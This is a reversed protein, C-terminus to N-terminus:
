REGKARPIPIRKSEDLTFTSGKDKSIYHNLEKLIRARDETMVKLREALEEMQNNLGVIRAQLENRENVAKLMGDFVLSALELREPVAEIIQEWTLKPAPQLTEAAKQERVIAMGKMIKWPINLKSAQTALHGLDTHKGLPRYNNTDDVKILLRYMSKEPKEQQQRRWRQIWSTVTSRYVTYDAEKLKLWLEYPMISPNDLWIRHAYHRAPYLEISRERKEKPSLTM